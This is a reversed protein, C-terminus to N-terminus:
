YIGCGISIGFRHQNAYKSMFNESLMDSLGLGYFSSENLAMREYHLGISLYNKWDERAETYNTRRTKKSFNFPKFYLSGSYVNGFDLFAFDSSGNDINPDDLYGYIPFSSYGRKIELMISGYKRPFPCVAVGIRGFYNGQFYKNDVNNVANKIMDAKAIDEPTSVQPSFAENFDSTFSASPHWRNIGKWGKWDLTLGIIIKKSFLRAINFGGQLYLGNARFDTAIPTQVYHIGGFFYSNQATSDYKLFQWYNNSSQQSFLSSVTILSILLFNIKLLKSLM